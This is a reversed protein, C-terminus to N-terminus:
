HQYPSMFSKLQKREPTSSQSKKETAYLIRESVKDAIIDVFPSFFSLILAQQASNLEKM